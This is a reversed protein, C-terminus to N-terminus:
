ESFISMDAKWFKSYAIRESNNKLLLNAYNQLAIAIEPKETFKIRIKDKLSDGDIKHTELELLKRKVKNKGYKLYKKIEEITIEILSEDNDTLLKGYRGIVWLFKMNEKNRKLEQEQGGPTKCHLTMISELAYHLNQLAERFKEQELQTGELTEPNLQSPFGITTTNVPHYDNDLTTEIFGQHIEDLRSRSLFPLAFKQFDEETGTKGTRKAIAETVRIMNNIRSCPYDLCYGCNEANNTLVCRRIHCKKWLPVKEPINFCGECYPEKYIWGRTRHFKKWGEDVTKRDEDSKLNAKYAPCISCNFGCLSIAETM